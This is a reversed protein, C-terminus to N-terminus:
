VGGARAGALSRDLAVVARRITEVAAVFFASDVVEVDDTPRHYDPHDEVGFYLFPVGARHFAAHDSAGVWNDSGRDRETDHGFRLVVPPEPAVAEVVPRLAPYQATGAVWLEAQSRSVMDLNLNVLVHELPVPPRGVFHRAGQLGVEEADLFAVIVSHRPPAGSLSGALALLASVGSANDDAGNFIVGDRVGLHDYHATLVLYRDPHETGRVVAHLNVGAVSGDGLRVEFTDAIVELGMAALRRALHARAMRSGDTGSARGALSDHALASLDDLLRAGDVAVQAEAGVPLLALVSLALRLRARRRRGAGPWARWPGRTRAPSDYTLHM